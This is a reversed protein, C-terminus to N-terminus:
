RLGQSKIKVKMLPTFGMEARAPPRIDTEEIQDPNILIIPTVPSTAKERVLELKFDILPQGATVRDGAMVYNQFGLGNMHVTDVGIHIMLDLGSKARIWISHKTRFLRVIEGDVPSVVTGEEPDIAIGMGAMKRFTPDPVEDMALVRGSLPSIVIEETTRERLRFWNKFM